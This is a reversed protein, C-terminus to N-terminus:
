VFNNRYGFGTNHSGDLNNRSAEFGIATNRVGITNAYLAGVGSATNYDGSTNLALARYGRLLKTYCVNYSTIRTEQLNSRIAVPAQEPIQEPAPEIANEEASADAVAEKRMIGRSEAEMEMAPAQVADLMVHNGRMMVRGGYMPFNFWDIQRYLQSPVDQYKSYNPTNLYRLYATTFGVTRTIVEYLM